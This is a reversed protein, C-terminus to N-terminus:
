GKGRKAEVESGDHSKFRISSLGQLLIDSATEPQINSDVGTANAFLNRSLEKLLDVPIEKNREHADRVAELLWSARGIDVIRARTLFEEEAHQQAWAGSWRIYYIIFTTFAALPFFAKLTILVWQWLQLKSLDGASKLFEYSQYSWFITLAGTFVLAIIYAAVIPWRKSRTGKTLHWDQLWNKLQEIQEEQKKRAVYRAEKTNFAAERDAIAKERQELATQEEAVKKESLAREQAVETRLKEELRAFREDRERDLQINRDAVKILLAETTQQLSNVVAAQADRYRNWSTDQHGKLAAELDYAKLEKRANALVTVWTQPRSPEPIYNCWEDNVSVKDSIQDLNRNVSIITRRQSDQLSICSLVESAADFIFKLDPSNEPENAPLYIEHGRPLSTVLTTPIVPKIDKQVRGMAAILERDTQRPIEFNLSM